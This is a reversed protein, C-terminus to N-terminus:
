ESVKVGQSRFIDIVEAISNSYDEAHQKIEDMSEADALTMTRFRPMNSMRKEMLSLEYAEKLGLLISELGICFGIGEIQTHVLKMSPVGILQCRRNVLAGGSNGPNIAADVQIMDPIKAFVRPAIEYTKNRGVYSVAGITVSGMLSSPSGIVAVPNGRTVLAPDGLSLKPMTAINDDGVEAKIIALDSTPKCWICTGEAYKATLGDGYGGGDWFIMYKSRLKSYDDLAVHANTLMYGGGIHSGSGQENGEVMITVVAPETARIVSEFSDDCMLYNRLLLTVLEARTPKEDPLFKGDPYGQILGLLYAATINDKAWHGAIDPFPTKGAAAIEKIWKDLNEPSYLM